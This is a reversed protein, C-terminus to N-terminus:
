LRGTVEGTRCHHPQEGAWTKRAVPGLTPDLDDVTPCETMSVALSMDKMFTGRKPVFAQRASGRGNFSSHVDAWRPRRCLVRGLRGALDKKPM